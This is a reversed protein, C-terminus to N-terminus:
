RKLVCRDIMGYGEMDYWVMYLLYFSRGQNLSALGHGYAFYLQFQQLVVVACSPSRVLASHDFHDFIYYPTLTLTKKTVYTLQYYTSPAVFPAARINTIPTWIRENSEVCVVGLLCHFLAGFFCSSKPHVSSACHM